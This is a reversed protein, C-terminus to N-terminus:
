KKRAAGTRIELEKRRAETEQKDQELARTQTELPLGTGFRGTVGVMESGEFTVREGTSLGEAGFFDFSGMYKGWDDVFRKTGLLQLAKM